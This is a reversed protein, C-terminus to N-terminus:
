TPGIIGGAENGFTVSSAAAGVQPSILSVSAEIAGAAGVLLPSTGATVTAVGPGTATATFSVNACLVGFPTAPGCKVPDPPVPDALTPQIFAFLVLLVVAAASAVSNVFGLLSTM